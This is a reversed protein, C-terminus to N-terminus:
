MPGGVEMFCSQNFNECHEKKCMSVSAPAGKELRTACRKGLGERLRLRCDKHFSVCDWAASARM